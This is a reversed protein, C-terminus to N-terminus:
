VEYVAGARALELPGAYATRADREATKPDTWPPIHTLVLRSVGAREAAQGAERGNLHLDPIDEKGHTFSAECLFLDADRALVDLAECPGTDGSYTLTRGGHEVRLGFAEVPHSVLDAEVTFPGIRFRGPTLTRFDFVESMAKDSPLDGGYATALRQETGEPGYVPLRPGIARDPPYYRVVWYNCMDICHDAHLHSLVVADLDYLGCHRQLEGLAGNGMDLLMRFGDAEVLYSSCASDASPFSGSCGVVTLKM